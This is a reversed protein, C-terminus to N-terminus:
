KGIKRDKFGAVPQNTAMTYGIAAFDGGQEVLTRWEASGFRRQGDPNMTTQGTGGPRRAVSAAETILFQPEGYGIVKRRESDFRVPLQMGLEYREHLDVAINFGPEGTGTFYRYNVEARPFLRVFDSVYPATPRVADLAAFREKGKQSEQALLKFSKAVEEPTFTPPTAPDRPFRKRSKLMAPQYEFWDADKNRLFVSLAGDPHHSDFVLVWEKATDDRRISRLPFVKGFQYRQMLSLAAEIVEREAKTPTGGLSQLHFALSNTAIPPLSEAASCLIPFGNLAVILICLKIRMTHSATRSHTLQIPCGNTKPRKM